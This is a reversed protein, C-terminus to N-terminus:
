RCERFRAATRESQICGRLGREKHGSLKYIQEGSSIDWIRITKSDDGTALLRGDPSFAIYIVPRRLGTLDRLKRGTTYMGYGSQGITWAPPWGDAM